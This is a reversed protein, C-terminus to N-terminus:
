RRGVNVMAVQGPLSFLDILVLVGLGGLTCLYLVGRGVRGLYFQHAGLVGLFILLLYAVGVSKEPRAPGAVNVVIPQQPFTVSRMM